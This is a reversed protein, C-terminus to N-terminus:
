AWKTNTHLSFNQIAGQERSMTKMRTLQNRSGPCGMVFYGTKTSTANNVLWVFLSDSVCAIKTDAFLVMCNLLITTNTM